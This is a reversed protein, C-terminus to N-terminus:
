PYIGDLTAWNFGQEIIWTKNVWLHMKYWPTLGVIDDVCVLHLHNTFWKYSEPYDIAYAPVHWHESNNVVAWFKINPRSNWYSEMTSSSNARLSSDGAGYVEYGLYYRFSFQAGAEQVVWTSYNYSGGHANIYVAMEQFRMDFIQNGHIQASVNIFMGSIIIALILLLQPKIKPRLWYLGVILLILGIFTALPAGLEIVDTIWSTRFSFINEPLKHFIINYLEFLGNSDHFWASIFFKYAFGATIIGPFTKLLRFCMFSFPILYFAAVFFYQALNNVSSGGGLFNLTPNLIFLLGIEIFFYSGALLREIKDETTLRFKKGKSYFYEFGKAAIGFYPLVLPIYYYNLQFIAPFFVFPIVLLWALLASGLAPNRQKSFFFAWLGIIFFPLLVVLAYDNIASGVSSPLDYNTGTTYRWGIYYEFFLFTMTLVEPASSSMEGPTRISWPFVGSAINADLYQIWAVFPYFSMIVIIATISLFLMHSRFKSIEIASRIRAKIKFKETIQNKLRPYFFLVLSILVTFLIGFITIRLADREFILGLIMIGAFWLVLWLGIIVLPTIDLLEYIFTLFARNESIFDLLSGLLFIAILVAIIGGLLAGIIELVVLILNSTSLLDELFVLGSFAGSFVDNSGFAEAFALFPEYFRNYLISVIVSGILGSVASTVGIIILGINAQHILGKKLFGHYILCCSIAISFAIILGAAILRNILLSIILAPFFASVFVAFPFIKSIRQSFSASESKNNDNLTKSIENSISNLSKKIETVEIHREAYRFVLYIAISPAILIGQWAKTMINLINLLGTIIILVYGKKMNNEIFVADIARIGFVMVLAGMFIVFPDIYATRSYSTLFIALATLLGAIVHSSRTEKQHSFLLYMVVALGAGGIMVVGKAAFTTKGFISMLFAGFIFSFPPKDFFKVGGLYAPNPTGDYYIPLLMDNLGDAIRAAISAFWGEDWMDISSTYFIKLLFALIAIVFVIRYKVFVLWFQKTIIPIETKYDQKV